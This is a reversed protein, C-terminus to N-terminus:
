HPPGPKKGKQKSVMCSEEESFLRNMDKTWKQTTNDEGEQNMLDEVSANILVQGKTM